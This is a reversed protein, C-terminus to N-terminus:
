KGCWSQMAACPSIVTQQMHMKQLCQSLPGLLPPLESLEVAEHEAQIIETSVRPRRRCGLNFGGNQLLCKVNSANM